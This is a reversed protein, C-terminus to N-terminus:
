SPVGGGVGTFLVWEPGSQFALLESRWFSIPFFRDPIKTSFSYNSCIYIYFKTYLWFQKCHLCSDRLIEFSFRTPLTRNFTGLHPSLLHVKRGMAIELKANGGRLMHTLMHKSTLSRNNWDWPIDHSSYQADERRLKYFDAALTCMHVTRTHWDHGQM